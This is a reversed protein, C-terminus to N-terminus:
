ARAGFRGLISEVVNVDGFGGAKTVLVLPGRQGAALSVPVGALAEGLPTLEAAGTRALLAAATDGGFVIVGGELDRSAEEALAAAAGTSEEDPTALVRLGMRRAAEAQARSAPHRSGCVVLWNKVRPWAPPASRAGPLRRVWHRAFGGAGAVAIADTQAAAALDEETEGDLVAVHPEGALLERISSTRV